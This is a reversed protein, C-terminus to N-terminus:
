TTLSALTYGGNPDIELDFDVLDANDDLLCFNYINRNEDTYQVGKIGYLESYDFISWGTNETPHNEIAEKWTEGAMYYFDVDVKIELYTVDAVITLKQLPNDDEVQATFTVTDTYTGPRASSFDTESVIVGMPQTAPDDDLATFTWTTTPQTDTATAALYYGIQGKGACVLAFDDGSAATVTLKKGKALEGTAGVGDTANWGAGSVTVAAPITLTYTSNTIEYIHAWKQDHTEPFTKTVKVAASEDDGADVRLGPGIVM